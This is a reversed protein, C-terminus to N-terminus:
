FITAIKSALKDVALESDERFALRYQEADDSDLTMTFYAKYFALANVITNQEDPTIILHRNTPM